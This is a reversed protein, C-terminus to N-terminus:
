QCCKNFKFYSVSLIKFTGLVFFCYVESTISASQRITLRQVRTNFKVGNRM